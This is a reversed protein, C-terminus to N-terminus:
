SSGKEGAYAFLAYTRGEVAEIRPAKPGDVRAVLPGDAARVTRDAIRAEGETLVFVAIEAPYGPGTDDHPPPAICQGPGLCAEDVCLGLAKYDGGIVRELVAGSPSDLRRQRRPLIAEPSSLFAETPKWDGSVPDFSKGSGAMQLLPKRALGDRPTPTEPLAPQRAAVLLLTGEGHETRFPTDPPLFLAVPRGPEFPSPRLGRRLWSGGGAYLDHTGGLVVLLGEGAPSRQPPCSGRVELLRLELLWPSGEFRVVAAGEGDANPRHLEM